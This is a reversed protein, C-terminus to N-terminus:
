LATWEKLVESYSTIYGDALEKKKKDYPVSYADFVAICRMGAAHAALIGEILDEFVLCQEPPVQLKEACLLYVDPSPKGARVEDSTVCLSIYKGLDLNTFCADVLHRSNSTAIGMQIGRRKMERLFEAAGPKLSIEHRYAQYAMENWEDMLQECTDPLHFKQKFYEATEYMSLGNIDHQLHDPMALGRKKMFRLDVDKWVTMSDVLTGDLDFLVAQLNDYHM